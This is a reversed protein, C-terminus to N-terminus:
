NANYIRRLNKYTEIIRGKGDTFYRREGQKKIERVDGELTRLDAQTNFMSMSMGGTDYAGLYKQEFTGKNLSDIIGPLLKRYKRTQSKRIIALAEGGEARRDKGDRTYGIPIDNGSAHSGGQLFELGGEGYEKKTLQSAKIKAAAFSGWMLATGAIAAAIGWPGTGTFSKWIGATATVLSSVQQLTDIAKQAKQAKEQEKLAKEQNKKALEFEKQAMTVNSAYGNNRAEIEADLKKQSADVEVNAADVAAQAADVKAQLFNQVQGIAFATSEGIAAKQDDDLNLGVMSYIDKTKEDKSSQEIEQNIRAITNEIIKVEDESLKNAATKNLELIKKWRAAEAQLRFRTKEEETKKLLDFESQSLQQEIDLMQMARAQAMEQQQASRQADYKANIDAESQQMESSLKANQALEIQRGKELLQLKLDMEAESGETVAALRLELAKKENELIALQKEAEIRKTKEAGDTQIQNIKDQANQEILIITDKEEQSLKTIDKVRAKIADVRQKSQFNVEAVQRATDDKIARIQEEQLEKNANRLEDQRKKLSNDTGESKGRKNGTTVALNAEKLLDAAKKLDETSSVIYKDGSAFADKSSQELGTMEKEIERVQGQLRSAAMEQPSVYTDMTGGYTSDGSSFASFVRDMITVKPAEKKKADLETQKQEAKIQDQLAKEYEKIALNQGALARSKLLIAQVFAESNTILLNEADKVNNVEVGLKDFEDKNDTVFKKKANLDDGLENWAKQLKKFSVIQSAAGKSTGEILEQTNEIQRNLKEQEKEADKAGKSFMVLAGVVTVLAVALLVYPNASAVLNYAKQAITARITAKTGQIQILRRYAEAKALAYTQVTTIGVMVASQKQLNNQLAQVGTTIAIVSQLKKQAEAVNESEGGFLEMGGVVVSIGGGAVGLAGLAQDLKTTDSAMANVEQTADALSDKLEGTEELLKQYAATGAEGASRMRALEMTNNRIVTTLKETASAYNGVNLQHKGTVEQLRKMEEYIAKTESEFKRGQETAEREAATMNNLIIKNMSYQASLQNYSKSKMNAMTVEEEGRKILLKNMANAESQATKLEALVKANESEAFVLDRQAKALRDAEAAANKTANRGADTSSTVKGLIQTLQIAEGKINKLANTYADSLEDLQKILDSISSDPAIFDSYKIPNDAM